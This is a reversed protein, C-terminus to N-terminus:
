GVIGRDEVRYTGGVLALGGEWRCGPKGCRHAVVTPPVFRGRGGEGWEHVYDVLEREGGKRTTYQIVSSPGVVVFPADALAGTRCDGPGSAGGHTRAYERRESAASPKVVRGVYVIFLRKRGDYALVPAGRLSWVMDDLRTLRGLEILEGSPAGPGDHSSASPNRVVVRGSGLCRDCRDGLLDVGEGDCVPCTSERPGDDGKALGDDVNVLKHGAKRFSAIWRAQAAMARQDADTRFKVGRRKLDAIRTSTSERPRPGRSTVQLAVEYKAPDGEFIGSERVLRFSDPAQFHRLLTRWLNGRSSEGVYVVRHSSKERVAYAGSAHHARSKLLPSLEGNVVLAQWKPSAVM